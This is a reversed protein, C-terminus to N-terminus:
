SKVFLYILSNNTLEQTLHNCVKTYSLIWNATECDIKEGTEGLCKKNWSKLINCRTPEHWKEGCLFCFVSGCNCEIPIFEIHNVKIANLCNPTPCWRLFRNTVVFSNTILYQYKARVKPEKVIDTITQDDVIIDCGNEACTIANCVGDSIIKNTLYQRWCDTLSNLL